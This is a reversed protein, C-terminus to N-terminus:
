KDMAYKTEALRHLAGWVFHNFLVVLLAMVVVSATLLPFNSTETATFIMSGLGFAQYTDNGLQLYETVISANWAGGATTVWGTVLFRLMSPIYLWRFRQWGSIRFGRAAEILDSPIAMAGAITNFLLYWQTGVLMLLVSGWQIWTPGFGAALIMSALLPYIMPAPFSAIVQLVPQAYQSLKPSRTILLAVPVTWLTALAVCLLVRVLTACAALFIMQWMLFDVSRMLLILKWATFCLLGALLIFVLQPVFTWLRACINHSTVSSETNSSLTPNGIKRRPLAVMDLSIGKQSLAYKQRRIETLVTLRERRRRRRQISNLIRSDHLLDLFWSTARITDGGSGEEMNYKQAWVVIPRWLLQDLSVIMIVMSLIAASMAYWNEATVAAAMYSGLGPLRFDFEGVQFTECVTLFFWGGAMSMISNWVLGMTAFPLELLRFRKWPSFHYMNAVEGLDHPMSTLSHYFSFTMNWVQGSFIMLISALELGFNTNPFLAVLGLILGPMFGLVPISQLIDLLPILVREARKDKAAWYGYILSFVLSFLYAILGRALSRLSYGPLASLSLDITVARDPKDALSERAFFILWYFLGAVALVLFLDIWRSRRGEQWLALAGGWVNLRLRKM